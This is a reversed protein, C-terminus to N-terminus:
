RGRTVTDADDHWEAFRDLIAHDDTERLAAWAVVPTGGAAREGTEEDEALWGWECSELAIGDAAAAEQLRGILSSFADSDSM